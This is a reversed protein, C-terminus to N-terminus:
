RNRKDNPNAGRRTDDMSKADILCVIIGGITTLFIGIIILAWPNM